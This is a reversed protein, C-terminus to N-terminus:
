SNSTAFPGEIRTTLREAMMQTWQAVEDSKRNDSRMNVILAHGPNGPVRDVELKMGAERLGKVPLIAVYYGDKSPGSEALKLPTLFEPHEESEMRSVSLGDSDSSRHPKFAEAVPGRLPDYWPPKAPLRRMVLESDIIEDPSDIM